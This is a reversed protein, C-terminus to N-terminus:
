PQDRENFTQGNVPIEALLRTGNGQASEITLKGNLLSVRERMGLLGGANGTLLVMDPNFGNGEDEVRIGLIGQDYWVSLRAEGVRAYRAVNTLAEQVIRYAATEVEPNFRQGELGTHKLTIKINTQVSYRDLFWLLTPLLGLDDLLAPRLDLSLQSVREMLEVVLAHAQNLGKRITDDQLPVTMELILAIGTLAQGVEDHLERAISRREAEQIELLQQSLAQLNEQDVRLQDILTAQKIAIGLQNAVERGIEQHDPLFANPYVAMLIISGIPEGQVIIPVLMLSRYDQIQTIWVIPTALPSSLLDNHLQIDGQQLLELIKDFDALSDINIHSESIEAEQDDDATDFLIVQKTEFEFLMFSVRDCSLLNRVYQMTTRAVIELSQAALIVQDIKHLIVLREAYQNLRQEVKKRENIEAELLATRLKVRDELGQNLNKLSSELFVIALFVLLRVMANWYPILPHSYATQTTLDAILWTIASFLAVIIGSLWDALWTVFSIPLLYFISFSFQPGTVYDLVGLLIILILGATTVVWKFQELLSRLKVM